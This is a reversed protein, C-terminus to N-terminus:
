SPQVVKIADRIAALTQAKFYHRFVTGENLIIGVDPAIVKLFLHTPLILYDFPRAEAWTKLKELTDFVPVAKVDGQRLYLPFFRETAAIQTWSGQTKEANQAPVYLWANLFTDYFFNAQEPHKRAIQLAEDLVTENTAAETKKDDTSM